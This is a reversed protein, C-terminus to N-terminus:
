AELSELGSESQSGRSGWNFLVIKPIYYPMSKPFLSSPIISIGDKLKDTINHRTKYQERFVIVTLEFM